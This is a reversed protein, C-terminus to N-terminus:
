LIICTCVIYLLIGVEETKVRIVRSQQENSVSLGQIKQRCKEVEEELKLKRTAENKLRRKLSSEHNRLREIGGELDAIRKESKEGMQLLRLTEQRKRQLLALKSEANKLKKRQEEITKTAETTKAKRHKLRSVSLTDHTGTKCANTETEKDNKKTNTVSKVTDSDSSCTSQQSSETQFLIYMYMYICMSYSLFYAAGRYTCTINICLSVGFFSFHLHLQPFVNKGMNSNQM